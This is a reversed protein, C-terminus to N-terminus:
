YTCYIVIPKNTLLKAISSIGLLAACVELFTMQLGVRDGSITKGNEKILESHGLFSWHCIGHMELVVGLGRGIRMNSGGAADPFPDVASHGHAGM